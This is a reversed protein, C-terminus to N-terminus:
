VLWNMGDFAVWPTSSSPAFVFTGDSRAEFRVTTISSFGSGVGIFTTAGIPRDGAPISFPQFGSSTTGYDGGNSPKVRGYITRKRGERIILPTRGAVDPVHGNSLALVVEVQDLDDMQVMRKWGYWANSSYKSRRWVAGNSTYDTYEQYTMLGISWVELKGAVTSPYNRASTANANTGQHYVATATITNLDETTLIIPVPAKTWPLNGELYSGTLNHKHDYRAAIDSSGTSSGDITFSTSPYVISLTTNNGSSGLAGGGSLGTGAIIETAAGAAGINQRAALVTAGGTGGQVIPLIGTVNADTLAHGHGSTAAGIDTLVESPTKLGMAGTGGGILYSGLTNSTRGTGGQSTPLTGTINADTLAHGHGSTAAGIDSLVQAPTKGIVPNNGDGTIYNGATIGARGTGGQVPPLIGTVNADTLAHSHDSRASTSKSGSGEFVVQLTRSAALTGGGSLGAGATVSISTSPVQLATRAAAATTAGTGGQNLPLTGTINADTLAHGHGSAAADIDTRLNAPTVSEYAGGASTGRLYAGATAVTRGTGGKSIPLTGVIKAQDLNHEHDYRAVLTSSGQDAGWASGSAFTVSLTRNASLAGGGALGDGTNITTAAAAAGIGARATAETTGGTGGKAVPLVGTLQDSTLAYTRGAVTDDVYKKTTAHGAVSPETTLTVSPTSVSGDPGVFFVTVTGRIARYYGTTNGTTNKSTHGWMTASNNDVTVASDTPATDSTTTARAAQSIRMAGVLLDGNSRVRLHTGGATTSVRLLDGTQSAIAQIILSTDGTKAARVLHSLTASGVVAWNVGDARYLIGQDTAFYYMGIKNALPRDLIVGQQDIAAQNEINLFTENFDVRQPSDTGSSWQVLRMRATRTEVM